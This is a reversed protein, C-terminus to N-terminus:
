EIVVWRKAKMEFRPLSQPAVAAVPVRLNLSENLAQAVRTALAEGDDCSSTPEVQVNLEAMQRDHRVEVRYEAVEDFNRVVRDIAAPYVNVGRVLVMNDVRGLIGGELTLQPHVDFPIAKVLDGTRYRLLPSGLRGLTTLVLEGVNGPAVPETTQPDIVEALYSSEIIRLTGPADKPEYSVPGVETMGHHDVVRAGPWGAEIRQRVTPVSGGPEGAVIIARVASASLDFGEDRAVETLRLAYTPTCCLVTARNDIVARLRAVSSLGGGPICMAGLQAASEYATWFGLFPGFSFAFYVRDGTGAEVGAAKFVQAWNGLMWGWSEPTDLWRMPTGTTGSTQNFRTYRNLPYTLNSGFPPHALQDDVVRQKTTLPMSARFVDLSEVKGALEASRLVPAYFANSPVLEALLRGLRDLQDAEIAARTTEISESM